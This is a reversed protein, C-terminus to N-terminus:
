PGRELASTEDVGPSPVVMVSCRSKCSLINAYPNKSRPLITYRQRMARAQILPTVCPINNNSPIYTHQTCHDNIILRWGTGLKPEQKLLRPLDTRDVLRRANARCYLHQHLIPHVDHEQIDGHRACRANLESLRQVLELVRGGHDKHGGIAVM